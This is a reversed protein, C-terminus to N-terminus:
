RDMWGDIIWGDIMLRNMEGDILSSDIEGDMWGDIM